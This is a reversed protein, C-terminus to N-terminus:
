HHSSAYVYVALARIQELSLKGIWPPMVGHRGYYLSNYLSRPDGGYSWVNATLDPAGYDPNGAADAGHCDSCASPGSFLAKGTQAQQADHPRGSLQLVYQVLNNIDAESLQGRQGFAPMETIDHAKQEGSRIGYLISREIAFVKGDGYLWQGDTLDPAGIAPMGKMNAGHCGSCNKAFLPRGEAVAFRVLAPNAAAADPLAALLERRLGANRVSVLGWAALALALLVAAGM